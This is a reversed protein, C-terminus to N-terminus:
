NAERGLLARQDNPRVSGQWRSKSFCYDQSIAVRKFRSHPTHEWGDRFVLRYVLDFFPPHSVRPSLLKRKYSSASSALKTVAEEAKGHGTAMDIYELPVIGHSSIRRGKAFTSSDEILDRMRDKCSLSLLTLIETLNGPKAILSKGRLAALKPYGDQGTVTIQMRTDSAHDSSPGVSRPQEIHVGITNTRSKLKESVVGSQLFPDNLHYQKIENRRRIARKEARLAQDELAEPTVTPQNLTGAGYFSGRNGPVNPSLTNHGYSHHDFYGPESTSYITTFSTNPMSGFSGGQQVTRAHGGLLMAEEDKLDVGSSAMVDGLENVDVAKEKEAVPRNPPGM